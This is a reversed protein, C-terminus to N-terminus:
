FTQYRGVAKQICLLQLPNQPTGLGSTWFSSRGLEACRVSWPANLPMFPGVRKWGFKRIIGESTPAAFWRRM